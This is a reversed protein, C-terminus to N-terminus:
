AISWFKYSVGANITTSNFQGRLAMLRGISAQLGFAKTIRYNLGLVPEILAGSGIDLGAGGATGALIEAFASLCPTLFPPTEGGLGLMGSFYGGTNKGVYAFASQGSLYVHRTVFYDFNVNLLQMTPNIVNLESYPKLYTQNLIRVRWPILYSQSEEVINEKAAGLIADSFYYKMLLSVETGKFNGQPAQVYGANLEIGFDSNVRYELGAAPQYIFGGGTNVAGGGGSGAGLKFIADLPIGRIPIRYGLGLLEDAYGNQHGHFAGAMNFFVFANDSFYHAAEFGVLEFHSEMLQDYTTTVGHSPLYARLMGAFYNQRSGLYRTSPFQLDSFHACPAIDDATVYRFEFPMSLEVGVQQSKIQGSLFNVYSYYAGAQFTGFDYKLGLYPEVFLGGGVASNHGGGGGVRAGGDISIQRWLQRQVGGELALAFYGGSNGTEAGYLGLGGYFNPDFDILAHLGTVGMPSVQAPMQYQEFSIRPDIVISHLQATSNSSMEIAFTSPPFLCIVGCSM